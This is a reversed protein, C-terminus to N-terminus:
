ACAGPLQFPPKEIGRKGQLYKRKMCWHRPVPVSNRLSKLCVLLLPDSATVDHAEVVEPRRVMQKLQAVSLRTAAKMARRSLTKADDSPEATDSAAASPVAAKAPADDASIRAIAREELRAFREAVEAFEAFIPSSLLMAAENPEYKVTQQQQQQEREEEEGGEEEEQIRKAGSEREM